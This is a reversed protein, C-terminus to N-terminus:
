CIKCIKLKQFKLLIEIIMMESSNLSQCLRNQIIKSVIVQIKFTTKFKVLNSLFLNRPNLALNKPILNCCNRVIKVIATQPLSRHSYPWQNLLLQITLTTIYIILVLTPKQSLIKRNNLRITIIKQSSKM